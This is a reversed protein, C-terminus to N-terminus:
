FKFFWMLMPMPFSFSNSGGVIDVWEFVSVGALSVQFASKETKQFRMGPMLFLATTRATYYQTNHEYWGTYGNEYTPQTIVETQTYSTNQSFVGLMSDFVFSAKAGVKAIGAISVIPGHVTSTKVLEGFNYRQDSYTIDETPRYDQFGSMLHAYGASFTINKSGSGSTFNMFHLGGYGRFNNLYGTTGFLSGISVNIKKTTDTNFTYKAAGLFPSAIWTTMVGLSLKESVAFHVEPGYLNILAYNEGKKIPLANTTFSYRTTFPGAERYEGYIINERSELPKISKINSKQIYIKGLNETMILIERGDDSQIEGIYEKGDNTVVVSWQINSNQTSDSPQQALIGNQATLTFLFIFFYYRM